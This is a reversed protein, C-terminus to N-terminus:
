KKFYVWHIGYVHIFENIFFFFISMINMNTTDIFVHVTCKHLFNQREKQLFLFLIVFCIGDELKTLNKKKKMM